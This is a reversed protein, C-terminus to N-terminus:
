EVIRNSYLQISNRLETTNHEGAAVTYENLYSSHICIGRMYSFYTNVYLAYRVIKTWHAYLTCLMQIQRISETAVNTNSLGKKRQVSYIYDHKMKDSIMLWCGIAVTWWCFGCM